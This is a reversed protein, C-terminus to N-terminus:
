KLHYPPINGAGVRLMLEELYGFWVLGYWLLVVSFHVLRSLVECHKYIIGFEAFTHSTAVQWGGDPNQRQYFYM